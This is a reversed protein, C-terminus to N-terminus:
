TVPGHLRPGAAHASYGGGAGASGPRAWVGPSQTRMRGETMCDPLVLLMTMCHICVHLTRSPEAQNQELPVGRSQTDLSRWTNSVVIDDYHHM